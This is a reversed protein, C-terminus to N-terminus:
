YNLNLIGGTKEVEPKIQQKFLWTVIFAMQTKYAIFICTKAKPGYNGGQRIYYM